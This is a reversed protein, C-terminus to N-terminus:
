MGRPQARRVDTPTATYRRRFARRFYSPDTFGVGGAIATITQTAFRPNRLRRHVLEVAPVADRTSLRLPPRAGAM